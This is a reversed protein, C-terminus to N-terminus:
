AQWRKLLISKLLNIRALEVNTSLGPAPALSGAVGGFVSQAHATASRMETGM